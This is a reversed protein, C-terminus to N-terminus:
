RDSARVQNGGGPLDPAERSGEHCYTPSKLREGAGFPAHPLTPRRRTVKAPVKGVAGPLSIVNGGDGGPLSIVNGGDGGRLVARSPKGELLELMELPEKCFGTTRKWEVKVISM